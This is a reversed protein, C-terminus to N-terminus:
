SIPKMLRPGPKPKKTRPLGSRSVTLCTKPFSPQFVNPVVIERFSYEGIYRRNSLMRQITGYNIPKGKTNTVGKGNLYDRIETVTRGQDYMKFTELVYPATEPNPQLHQEDNVIYGLPLTGGNWKCKEANITLGRVVKEKLDESYWEAMGELVSELLIGDAGSSIAETASIVKIGLKKLQTKHKVSDYRNRAFRDLKWVIIFDFLKRKSDAIM